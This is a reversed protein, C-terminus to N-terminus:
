LRFENMLIVREAESGSPFLTFMRGRRQDNPKEMINDSESRKYESSESRTRESTCHADSLISASITARLNLAHGNGQADSPISAGTTARHNLAKGNGQAHNPISACITARHNLAHGNGQADSPTSASRIQCQIQTKCLAEALRHKM